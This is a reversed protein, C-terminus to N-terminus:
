REVHHSDDIPRALIPEQSAAQVTRPVGSGAESEPGPRAAELAPRVPDATDRKADDERLAQAEAKFIRLSKGLARATDPLRKAGFLLLVVLAILILEGTGLQGFM